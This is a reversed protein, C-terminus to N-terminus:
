LRVSRRARLVGGGFLILVVNAPILALWPWVSFLLTAPWVQANTWLALLAPPMSLAAAVFVAPMRCRRACRAVTWGLALNFPADIVFAVLPLESPRAQRGDLVYRVLLPYEYPMLLQYVGRVVVWGTAVAGVLWLPHQRIEWWMGIVIAGVVERWYWSAPRGRRYHELLDGAVADTDPGPAFHRLLWTALAPPRSRSM